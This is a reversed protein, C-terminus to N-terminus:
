PLMARLDIRLRYYGQISNSQLVSCRSLSIMQRASSVEEWVGGLGMRQELTYCCHAGLDAWTLDYGSKTKSISLAPPFLIRAYAAYDPIGFFAMQDYNALEASTMNTFSDTTPLIVNAHWHVCQANNGSFATFATLGNTGAPRWADFLFTHTNGNALVACMITGPVILRQKTDDSWTIVDRITYIHGFNTFYTRLNAWYVDQIFPNPTSFGNTMYVYSAFESCWASLPRAFKSEDTQGLELCAARLLGNDAEYYQLKYQKMLGAVNLLTLSGGTAALNCLPLLVSMTRQSPFSKTRTSDFLTENNRIIVMNTVRLQGQPPQTAPDLVVALNDWIDDSFRNWNHWDFTEGNNWSNTEDASFGFRYEFTRLDAGATKGQVHLVVLGGTTCSQQLNTLQAWSITDRFSGDTNTLPSASFILWFAPAFNTPMTEVTTLRVLQTMNTFLSCGPGAFVAFCSALFIAVSLLKGKRDRRHKAVARTSSCQKEVKFILAFPAITNHKKM